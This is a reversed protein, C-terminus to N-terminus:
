ATNVLRFVCRHHYKGAECKDCANQLATMRGTGLVLLVTVALKYSNNGMIFTVYM